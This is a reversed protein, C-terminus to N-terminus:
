DRLENVSKQIQQMAWDLNSSPMDDVVQNIDKGLNRPSYMQIFLNCNSIPLIALKEKIYCRVYDQLQKNM